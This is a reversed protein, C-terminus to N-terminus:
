APWFLTYDVGNIRNRAADFTVDLRAGATTPLNQVTTQGAPATLSGTRGNSQVKAVIRSPQSSNNICRLTRLFLSVDDWDLEWVCNGSDFTGLQYVQTAM